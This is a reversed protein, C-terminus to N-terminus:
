WDWEIKYKSGLLPRRAVWVLAKRNGTTRRFDFMEYKAPQWKSELRADKKYLLRLGQPYKEPPFIVAVTMMEIWGYTSIEWFERDGQFANLARATLVSRAVDGKSFEMEEDLEIIRRNLKQDVVRFKRKVEDVFLECIEDDGDTDFAFRPLKQDNKTFKITRDHVYDAVLRGDVYKFEITNLSSLIRFGFRGKHALYRNRVAKVIGWIFRTVQLGTQITQIEIPNM